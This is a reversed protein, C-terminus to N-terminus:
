RNRERDRESILLDSLSSVDPALDEILDPMGLEAPATVEGAAVMQALTGPHEAEPIM